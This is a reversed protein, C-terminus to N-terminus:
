YHQFYIYYTSDSKSKIMVKTSSETISRPHNTAKCIYVGEDTRNISDFFLTSHIQRGSSHQVNYIIVRVNDPVVPHASTLNKHFWTIQVQNVADADNTANCVLRMKKGELYTMDPSIYTIEPPGLYSYYYNYM